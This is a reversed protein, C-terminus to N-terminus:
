DEEEADTAWSPSWSTQTWDSDNESDSDEEKKGVPPKADELAQALKRARKAAKRARKKAAASEAAEAVTQKADEKDSTDELKVGGAGDGDELNLPAQNDANKGQKRAKKKSVVEFASRQQKPSSAEKKVEQAQGSGGWTHVLVPVDRKIPYRQQHRIAEEVTIGDMARLEELVQPALRKIEKTRLSLNLALLWQIVLDVDLDEAGPLNPEFDLHIAISEATISNKSGNSSSSSM